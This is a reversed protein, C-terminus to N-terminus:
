SALQTPDQLGGRKAPQEFALPRSDDSLAAVGVRTEAVLLRLKAEELEQELQKVREESPLPATKKRGPTGKELAEIAGELAEWRMTHFRAQEIGLTDCAVKISCEGGLVELIARLRSKAYDSGELKDVIAPGATTRAM